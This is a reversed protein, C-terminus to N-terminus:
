RTGVSVRRGLSTAVAGLVLGFIMHGMLSQWATANIAFLPMGMKAPMLVLPGLVWWLMGYGAGLVVGLGLGTAFRGLVLSFGGGIVASITLHVLWGVIASSSGVLSAVMTIMGMMQMMMGFVM